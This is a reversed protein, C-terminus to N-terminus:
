VYDRYALLPPIANIALERVYEPWLRGAKPGGNCEGDSSGPRKIWSLIDVGAAVLAGGPRTTPREGVGVYKRPNCWAHDERPGRGSRGTDIVARLPLGTEKRLRQLFVVEDAVFETHSVNLSVGECKEVGARVLIEAMPGAKIWASDGADLYCKAGAANLIDVAESLMASREAQGTAGGKSVAAPLADPELLCVCLRGKIGSAVSRVWKIYTPRDEAGGASHNGYDRNVVNYLVFTRLYGESADLMRDVASGPDGGWDGLWDGSPQKAMAAVLKSGLPDASAWDRSLKSFENEKDVWLKLHAYPGPV